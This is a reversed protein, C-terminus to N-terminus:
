DDDETLKVALVDCKAGLLIDQSMSGLVLKGVPSRKRLGVVIVAAEHLEAAALAADAAETPAPPVYGIAQIGESQAAAVSADVLKALDDRLRSYQGAAEESRPIAIGAAIVLPVARTRAEQKARSLAYRGLEDGSLVVVVSSVDDGSERSRQSPGGAGEVDEWQPM